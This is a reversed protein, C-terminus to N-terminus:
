FCFGVSLYGKFKNYYIERGYFGEMIGARVPGLISMYGLGIGYGSLLSYGKSVNAERIGAIDGNINLHLDKALKWDFGIGIGAMQKVAIESPHYGYMAISRDNLATIGGLSFFNNQSPMSDCRSIYLLNSKLSITLSGPMRFYHEISFKATYFTKFSFQGPDNQNYDVENKGTKIDAVFMDSVGARLEILNGHEPFHRNDLSNVQYRLESTLYNYGIHNLDATSVFAPFLFRNELDISVGLLHNLGLVRDIGIGTSLNVSKWEGTEGLISQVPLLTKDTRFDASLVFKQNRGLAQSAMIDARYFQGICTSINFESGQLFMNKVSASMLIGSGLANDYHASGYFMTKPKETCEVVLVLSDSRPEIRYKVKEFWNMGYLLEINNYMKEKGTKEGPTIGLLGLVQNDPIINNGTVEIKDFTYYQKDLINHLPKQNGLRNLSDAIKRFQEKFPLAARYGIAVISDVPKFDLIQYPKVIPTVLIKILKKQRNYDEVSRSFGIQQVIGPITNLENEPLPRFGVYSGILIDAGLKKAEEAPFNNILGGDSLLATDIKIPSFVTPIASSARMADALYGSKMAVKRVTLLDAGVCTFPIPFKTFDKIDAAPWAYYSLSNEIHQGSILGSPLRVKKSSLPLSMASNNFYKKEPFYIKDQPINNSLLLDWDMTKLIKILSDTSYGLSYLGGIISGMSTGTVLDPRLGAEEMVKIVGVHAIGHSGGGSLVLGVVPRKGPQQSFLPISLILLGCILFLWKPKMRFLNNISLIIFSKLMM